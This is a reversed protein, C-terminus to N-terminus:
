NLFTKQILLLAGRDMQLVMEPAVVSVMIVSLMVGNLMVIFLVHCVSYRYEADHCLTKISLTM